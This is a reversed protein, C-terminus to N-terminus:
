GKSKKYADRAVLKDRWARLAPIAPLTVPFALARDIIPGLCIDAISFNAGALWARGATSRELIDLQASLEKVDAGFGAAREEEKKKSEKFVGLYPANLSALQWDMWREVQSRAAPETPYLAAGGALKSCLYRLITNSEWVVVDGDVLTPVKGNPNLGLYAETQTNNFQRGYDERSFPTRLEELLWVVKQVNGSTGRGLVRLM